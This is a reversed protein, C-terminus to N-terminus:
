LVRRRKLENKIDRYLTIAHSGSIASFLKNNIYDFHWKAEQLNEPTNSKYLCEYVHALCFMVTIHRGYNTQMQKLFEKRDNEQEM